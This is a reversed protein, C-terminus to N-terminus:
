DRQWWPIQESPPKGVWVMEASQRYILAKLMGSADLEISNKLFREAEDKPSAFSGSAGGTSRSTYIPDMRCYYNAALHREIMELETTSHIFPTTKALALSQMRLIVVDATDIYQQLSPLTGDELPGYNSGLINQVASTNTFGM